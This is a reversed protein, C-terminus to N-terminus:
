ALQDRFRAQFAGPNLVDLRDAHRLLDDDSSVLVAGSQLSLAAFKRDHPDTVFMAAGLDLPEVFQGGATFLDAATDWSLPPIKTLLRRTEDRTEPAWIMQIRGTRAATLLGASVSSKKFGAAVFVNTDLIARIPSTPKM